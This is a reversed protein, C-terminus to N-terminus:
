PSYKGRELRKGRWVSQEPFLTLQDYLADYEVPYQDDALFPGDCGQQKEPNARPLGTASRKVANQDLRTVGSRQNASRISNKLSAIRKGGQDKSRM